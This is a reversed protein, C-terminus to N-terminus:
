WVTLWDILWVSLCVSLCYVLQHSFWHLFDNTLDSLLNNLIQLHHLCALMQSTLVNEWRLCKMTLPLHVAPFTVVVHVPLKTKIQLLMRSLFMVLRLIFVQIMGWYNTYSTFWWACSLWEEPVRDESYREAQIQWLMPSNMWDNMKLVCVQFCCCVMLSFVESSWSLSALLRM